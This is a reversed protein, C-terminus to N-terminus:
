QNFRVTCNYDRHPPYTLTYPNPLTCDYVAQTLTRGKSDAAQLSASFQTPVFDIIKWRPASPMDDDEDFGPPMSSPCLTHTDLSNLTTQPVKDEVSFPAEGKKNIASPPIFSNGPVNITLKVIHTGQVVVSPYDLN